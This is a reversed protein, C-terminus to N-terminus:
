RFIAIRSTDFRPLDRPGLTLNTESFPFPTLGMTLTAVDIIGPEVLPMAKITLANVTKGPTIFKANAQEAVLTRITDDANTGDYDPGVILDFLLYIAVVNVRSFYVVHADGNVDTAVGSDSGYSRIGGAKSDWIIQAIADNNGPDPTVGDYLLVEFSHPPRGEADTVATTNEFARTGAQLGVITGGDQSAREIDAVLSDLTSSGSAALDEERRTRLAADDDAETGGSADLANTVSNWGVVPTAIVTITGANAPRKGVVEARFRVLHTGNALSTFDALPTWRSDPNGAVSAFHTGSVITSGNDLDVTCDVTSYTAAERETGSLKCLATLLFDEADDPDFAGFAAAALEWLKALEQSYIGNLQGLPTDASTDVTPAINAKQASEFDALIDQQTKAVFGEPNVGFTM